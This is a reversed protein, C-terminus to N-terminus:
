ARPRAPGVLWFSSPCRDVQCLSPLSPFCVVGFSRGGYHANLIELYLFRTRGWEKVGLQKTKNRKTKILGQRSWAHKACM